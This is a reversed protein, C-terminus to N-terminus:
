DRYHLVFRLADGRIRRRVFYVPTGDTTCSVGERVLLPHGTPVGLLPADTLDAGIASFARWSYEVPSGLVRHLAAALNATEEIATLLGAVLEEAVWYSSVALPGSEPEILTDIRRLRGPAVGQRVDSFSSWQFGSSAFTPTMGLALLRSCAAARSCPM